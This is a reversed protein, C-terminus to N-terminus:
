GEGEGRGEGEGGGGGREREPVLQLQHTMATLQCPLGLRATDMLAYGADYGAIVAEYKPCCHGFM